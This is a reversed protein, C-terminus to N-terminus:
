DVFVHFCPMSSLAPLFSRDFQLLTSLLRREFIKLTQESTTNWSNSTATMENSSFLKKPSSSLGFRIQEITPMHISTSFRPCLWRCWTQITFIKWLQCSSRSQHLHWNLSTTSSYKAMKRPRQANTKEFKMLKQSKRHRWPKKKQNTNDLLWQIGSILHSIFRTTQTQYGRNCSSVTSALSKLRLNCQQSHLCIQTIRGAWICATQSRFRNTGSKIRLSTLAQSQACSM